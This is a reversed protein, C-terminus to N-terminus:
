NYESEIEDRKNTVFPTCTNDVAVSYIELQINDFKALDLQLLEVLKM